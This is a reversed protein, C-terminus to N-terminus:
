FFPQDFYCLLLMVLLLVILMLLLMTLFLCQLCVKSPISGARERESEIRELCIGEPDKGEKGRKKSEDGKKVSSM